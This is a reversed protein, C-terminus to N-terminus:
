AWEPAVEEVFVAIEEVDEPDDCAEVWNDRIRDFNIRPVDPAWDIFESTSEEGFQYLGELLGKCYAKAERQMSLELYREMTDEYPQLEESALNAAAEGPEVYEGRRTEGARDWVDEIPISALTSFVDDAIKQSNVDENALRRIAERVLETALEEDRRSLSRLVSRAESGTLRAILAEVKTDDLTDCVPCTLSGELTIQPSDCEDCLHM